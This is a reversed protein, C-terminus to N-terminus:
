PKDCHEGATAVASGDTVEKLFERRGQDNRITVVRGAHDGVRLRLFAFGEAGAFPLAGVRTMM